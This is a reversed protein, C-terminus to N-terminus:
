SIGWHLAMLNTIIVTLPPSLHHIISKSRDSLNLTDPRLKIVSKFGMDKDLDFLMLAAGVICAVNHFIWCPFNDWYRSQCVVDVEAIPTM